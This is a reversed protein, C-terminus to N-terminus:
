FKTNWWVSIGLGLFAIKFEEGFDYKCYYIGTDLNSLYFGCELMEEEKNLKYIIVKPLLFRVVFNEQWRLRQIKSTIYSKKKIGM